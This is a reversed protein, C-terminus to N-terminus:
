NAYNLLHQRNLIRVERGRVEILGEAMLDRLIRSFHEHTLNLRSAILGKNASLTICDPGASGYPERMLFKVVRESGTALVYEEFESLRRHLQSGLFTIVRLALRPDRQVETMLLERPLHVVQSNVVAEATLIHPEGSFLPAEGFTAGQQALEIVREDGRNSQLSLKIQGSRVIYLGNCTDGRRYLIAGRPVPVEISRHALRTIRAVDSAQFLTLKSLFAQMSARPKSM